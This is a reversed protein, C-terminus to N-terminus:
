HGFYQNTDLILKNYMERIRTVLAIVKYEFTDLYYCHLVCGRILAFHKLYMLPMYIDLNNLSITRSSRCDLCAYKHYLAHLQIFSPFFDRVNNGDGENSISAHKKKLM